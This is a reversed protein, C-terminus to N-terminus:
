REDGDRRSLPSCEAPALRVVYGDASLENGIESMLARPRGPAIVALAHNLGILVLGHDVTVIYQGPDPHGETFHGCLAPNEAGSLPLNQGWLHLPLSSAEVVHLTRGKDDTAHSLSPNLGHRKAIVALDQTLRTAM